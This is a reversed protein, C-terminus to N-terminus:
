NVKKRMKKPFLNSKGKKNKLEGKKNVNSKARENIPCGTKNSGCSTVVGQFAFLSIVFLLLTSKKKLFSTISAYNKM